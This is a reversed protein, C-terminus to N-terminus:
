SASEAARLNAQLGALGDAADQGLSPMVELMVNGIQM